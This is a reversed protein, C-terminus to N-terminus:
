RFIWLEGAFPDGLINQHNIGFSKAQEPTESRLFPGPFDM